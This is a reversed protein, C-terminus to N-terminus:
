VVSHGLVAVTLTVLGLVLNLAVLRRVTAAAAGAAEWEAAAVARRLRPFPGAVIFVFIATMVLGVFTMVHVYAGVRGFGGMAVIMMIGTVIIAVIAAAVWAFFTRLTAAILPLRSAPPLAVLAPRLAVHAFFMGGVWVVIGLLHLWLAIRM